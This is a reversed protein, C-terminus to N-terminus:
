PPPAARGSRAPGGTPGAAAGAAASLAACALAFAVAGGLATAFGPLFTAPDNGEGARSSFLAGAVEVGLVMGVSRATALLGGGSGLRERPLAGMVASNNPAQILGMGLGCLALRAVVTWLPDAPGALSLLFLGAGLLSAGVVPLHRTGFRDSLWGAAPSAV